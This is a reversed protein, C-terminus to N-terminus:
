LSPNTPLFLFRKTIARLINLRQSAKKYIDHIHHSFTFLSDFTVGLFKLFKNLPVDVGSISVEPHSHYHKNCPSFLIVQSKGPPIALKKGKAWKVVSDISTQLKQSLITSDPHSELENVDDAYSIHIDAATLCDSMFFNFLVPTLVSGQPVGTYITRPSSTAANCLPRQSLRLAM